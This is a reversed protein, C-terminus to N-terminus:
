GPPVVSRSGLEGRDARYLAVLAGALVLATGLLVLANDQVALGGIKLAALGCLVILRVGLYVSLRGLWTPTRGRIWAVAPLLLVLDTPWMVLGNENWKLDTLGSTAMLFWVGVGTGAILPAVLFLGAGAFRSLERRFAAAVLLLGVVLSLAVVIYRALHPSGSQVPPGQREYLVESGPALGPVEGVTDHLPEPLFLEEWRSIPRDQEPGTLLEAGFLTPLHGAFGRTTLQRYTPGPPARDAERRLAGDTATDILDRVETTCNDRLYDYRYSFRGSGVEARLEHALWSAQAEELHLAQRKISRDVGRYRALEPEADRASGVFVADGQALAVYFGIGGEARPHGLNYLVDDDGETVRIASHGFREPVTEGPGFTVLEIRPQASAAGSLALMTLAILIALRRMTM